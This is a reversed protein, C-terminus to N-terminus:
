CSEREGARSARRRWPEVPRSLSSELRSIMDTGSPARVRNKILYASMEAEREEASEYRSRAQVVQRSGIGAEITRRVSEPLQRVVASTPLGAGHELWEHSLEHLITHETQHPTPRRRYLVYTVADDRIRLGCATRLDGQSDEVQMLQISRGRAAEISAVLAPISFPDPMELDALKAECEKLLGRVEGGVRLAQRRLRM